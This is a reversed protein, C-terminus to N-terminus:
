SIAFVRSRLRAVINGVAIMPCSEPLPVCDVSMISAMIIPAIRNPVTSLIAANTTIWSQVLDYSNRAAHRTIKNGTGSGSVHKGAILLCFAYQAPNIFDREFRAQSIDHSCEVFLTLGHTAFSRNSFSLLTLALKLLIDQGCGRTDHKANHM